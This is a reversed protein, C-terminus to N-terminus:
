SARSVASPRSGRANASDSARAHASDGAHAKGRDNKHARIRENARNYDDTRGEQLAQMAERELRALAPDIEPAGGGDDAMALFSELKEGSRCILVLDNYARESKNKGMHWESASCAAIARRIQEASYGEGLRAEVARRRGATLKARPLSMRAQWWRFLDEVVASHAPTPASQVRLLRDGEIDSALRRLGRVLTEEDIERELWRHLARALRAGVARAKPCSEPDTVPPPM